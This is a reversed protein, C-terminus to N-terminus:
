GQGYYASPGHKRQFHRALLAPAIPGQEPRIRSTFMAMRAVEELVLANELAKGPSAGWAFPGHNAVLVAPVAAPDIHKRRFTEVIVRGTDVEYDGRVEPRRLRRTVPVPGFFHDAHTTGFCPISRCAQAWATAYTSHTHIIAAAEPFARYLQLHTPTDSSPKLADAAARGTALALLVIQRPTLRDYSVGSPKIAVTGSGRDIVSANGWTLFVLGRRVIELNLRCAAERLENKTM